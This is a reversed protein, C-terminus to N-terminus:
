WEATSPGSNYWRPLEPSDEMSYGLFSWAIFVFDRCLLSMIRGDPLEELTAGGVAEIM